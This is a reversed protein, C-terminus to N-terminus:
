MREACEPGMGLTISDPRSLRRGCRACKGEHWLEIKALASAARDDPADVIAQVVWRLAQASPADASISSAGAHHWCLRGSRETLVALASFDKRNNPGTLLDVFWVKGIPKGEAILNSEKPKIEYTFRSGTRGSVVTVLTAGTPRFFQRAVRLDTVRGSM